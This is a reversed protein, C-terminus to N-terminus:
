ESFGKPALLQIRANLPGLEGSNLETIGRIAFREAECSKLAPGERV